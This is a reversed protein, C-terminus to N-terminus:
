SPIKQLKEIRIGLAGISYTLMLAKKPMNKCKILEMLYRPEGSVVEFALRLVINAVKEVMMVEEKAVISPSIALALVSDNTKLANKVFMVENYNLRIKALSADVLVLSRSAEEVIVKVIDEFSEAKLYRWLKRYILTRIDLGVNISAELYEEPEDNVVIYLVKYRYDKAASFGIRHLVLYPYTEVEGEMLILYGPKIAGVYEDLAPIGLRFMIESSM